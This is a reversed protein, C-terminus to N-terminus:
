DSNIDEEPIIINFYTGNEIESKVSIEGNLSQVVRYVLNLGVGKSNEKTTYGREFIKDINEEKIGIGNDEVNVEIYNNEEKIKLYVFKEDKDSKSLSEFANELLNGLITILAHPSILKHEKNGFSTDKDIEFNIALEKARSIKGMVLGAVTPEKIKAIVSNLIEDQEDYIDKIYLKAREIENLHLLGLIVHLKNIFEHTNARLAEVIQKVGTVEEALHIFETKDRFTVMAGIITNKNKIPVRNALIITDNILLEQDYESKGTKLIHPLSTTKFFLYINKGLLEEQSYKDELGIIKLAAKNILTINENQDIALIGESIAELMGVKDSYLKAIEEPELGLLSKKISSSLFFTGVTGLIFGFSLFLSLNYIAVKTSRNINEELTGVSVFGIQKGKDNYIPTFARFSYGLTGEGTSVYTKANSLVLEEDGGQFEKGIKDKEPHSYRIGDMDAVVIFKIKELNKMLNNVYNQIEGESNKKDLNEQIYPTNAILNATNLINTEIKGYVLNKIWNIEFPLVFFISIFLVLTIMLSIKTQLKMKKIKM